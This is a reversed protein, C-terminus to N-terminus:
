RWPGTLDFGVMTEGYNGDTTYTGPVFRVLTNPLNPFGHYNQRWHSSHSAYPTILGPLYGRLTADSEQVPVPDIGLYYGNDAANPLPIGTGFRSYLGSTYWGTTGFLQHHPRALIREGTTGHALLSTTIYETSTNDWEYSSDTSNTIYRNMVCGYQDGPRVSNIDGFVYGSLRNKLGYRTFYYFIRSDGILEWHKSGYNQTAPWYYEYVETYETLSVVEEVMAVAALRKQTTGDHWGSFATNDIRMKINSADPDTSGLIMVEGTEDEFLVEWGIPAVKASLTGTAATQAPVVAPVYRFQTASTWTVRQEGNYETQDAGEILIISDKLYSHGASITGTVEGTGSDYTLSDVALLGFGTILVKKLLNTLQGHQSDTPTPAGQMAETYWKVPYRASM